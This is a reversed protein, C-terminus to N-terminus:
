PPSARKSTPRVCRNADNADGHPECLRLDLALDHRSAPLSCGPKECKMEAEAQGHAYATAESNPHLPPMDIQL